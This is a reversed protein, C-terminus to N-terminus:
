VSGSQDIGEIIPCGSEAGRCLNILLRMENRLTNLENLQAEVENLKSQMLARVETRV